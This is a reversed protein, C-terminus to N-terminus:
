TSARQNANLTRLGDIEVRLTQLLERQTLLKAEALRRALLEDESAVTARSERESVTGEAQLLAKAYSTKAAVEAIAADETMQGLAETETWLRELLSELELIPRAPNM